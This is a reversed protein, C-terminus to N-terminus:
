LEFCTTFGNLLETHLLCVASDFATQINIRSLLVRKHSFYNLSISSLQVSNALNQDNKSVDM